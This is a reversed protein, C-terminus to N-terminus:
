LSTEQGKVYFGIMGFKPLVDVGEWCDCLGVHGRCLASQQDVDVGM